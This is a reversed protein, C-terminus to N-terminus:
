LEREEELKTPPFFLSNQLTILKMRYYIVLTLHITGKLLTNGEM